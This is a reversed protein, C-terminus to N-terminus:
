ILNKDTWFCLFAHQNALSGTKVKHYLGSTDAEVHYSDCNRTPSTSDLCTLDSLNWHLGIAQYFVQACFYNNIVAFTITDKNLIFQNLMFRPYSILSRISCNRKLNSCLQQGASHKFLASSQIKATIICVLCRVGPFYEKRCIYCGLM